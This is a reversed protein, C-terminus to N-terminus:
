APKKSLFSQVEIFVADGRSWKRDIYEKSKKLLSLLKENEAPLHSMEQNAQFILLYKEELKTYAESCNEQSKKLNQHSIDALGSQLHIEKVLENFRQNLVSLDGSPIDGSVTKIAARVKEILEQM